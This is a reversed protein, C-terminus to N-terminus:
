SRYRETPCCDADKDDTIAESVSVNKLKFDLRTTHGGNGIYIYRSLYLPFIINWLRIQVATDTFWLKTYNHGFIM